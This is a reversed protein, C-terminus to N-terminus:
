FTFFIYFFILHQYCLTKYVSFQVPASYRKKLEQLFETEMYLM